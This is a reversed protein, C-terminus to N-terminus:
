PLYKQVVQWGTWTVTALALGLGANIGWHLPRSRPRSPHIRLGSWASVGVLTVVLVGAPLHWSHGLTGYEGLTGIIGITLLLLVLTVLSIGLTIHLSRVWPSRPTKHLRGSLLWGGSVLLFFYASLSLGM